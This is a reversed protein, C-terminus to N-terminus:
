ILDAVDRSCHLIRAIKLPKSAKRYVVLYAGRVPWFLVDDDTFDARRHGAQPNRALFECAKYIDNELKDASAPNDKAIYVWIEQLDGIAETSLEYLKM